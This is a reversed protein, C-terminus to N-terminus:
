PLEIPPPGLYCIGNRNVDKGNVVVYRCGGRNEVEVDAIAIAPTSAIVGFASSAIILLAIRRM